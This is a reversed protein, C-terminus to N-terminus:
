TMVFKLLVGGYQLEMVNGSIINAYYKVGLNNIQAENKIFPIKLLGIKSKVDKQLDTTLSQSSSKQLVEATVYSTPIFLSLLLLAIIRKMM